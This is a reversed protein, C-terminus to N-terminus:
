FFTNRSTRIRIWRRITVFSPWHLCCLFSLRAKKNWLSLRPNITGCLTGTYKKFSNGSGFCFKNNMEVNKLWSHKARICWSTSTSKFFFCFTMVGKFIIGCVSKSLTSMKVLWLTLREVLQAILPKTQERERFQLFVKDELNVAACQAICIWWLRRAVLFPRRSSSFIEYRSKVHM